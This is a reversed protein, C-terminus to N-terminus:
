IAVESVTYPVYENLLVVANDNVGPVSDGEGMQNGNTLCFANRNHAGSSLSHYYALNCALAVSM